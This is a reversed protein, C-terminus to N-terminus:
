RSSLGPQGKSGDWVVEGVDDVNRAAAPRGIKVPAISIGPAAAAKAGKSGVVWHFNRPGTGAHHVKGEKELRALLGKLRSPSVNLRKALAPTSAGVGLTTIAGM